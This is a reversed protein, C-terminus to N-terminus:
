RVSGAPNMMCGAVYAWSLFFHQLLDIVLIYTFIMESPLSCHTLSFIMKWSVQCYVSFYVSLFNDLSRVTPLVLWWVMLRDSVWRFSSPRLWLLILTPGMIVLTGLFATYYIVAIFFIGKLLPKNLM